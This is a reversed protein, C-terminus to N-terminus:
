HTPTFNVILISRQLKNTCKNRKEIEKVKRKRKLSILGLTWGKGVRACACLVANARLPRRSRQYLGSM